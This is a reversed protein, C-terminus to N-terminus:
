NLRYNLGLRAGFGFGISSGTGLSVTPGANVEGFVSIPANLQYKLGATVHPYVTFGTGKGLSIGAGLGAGYYPTFAGLNGGALNALYDVSGGVSLTGFNFGVADLNLGYRLASQANRDTQYHISLGSGISGGIYNAASASSAASLALLTLTAKKM